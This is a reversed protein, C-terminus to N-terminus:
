RLVPPAALDASRANAGGFPSRSVSGAALIHTPLLVGATMLLELQTVYSKWEDSTSSGACVRLCRDRRGSTTLLWGLRATAVCDGWEM